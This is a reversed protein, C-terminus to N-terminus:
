RTPGRIWGRIGLEKVVVTAPEPEHSRYKGAEDLYLVRPKLNYTGKDLPRLVIKLEATKLPNLTRGKMDIYSDEVRCIDPASRVEFGEPIIEEVKILQAPAKGANVLEIEIDVDDGVKVDGKGLIFNAQIDANEFRELGVAVERTPSPATFAETTSVTTPAHLMESLSAALERKERVRRLIRQVEESKEPHKAMLFSGASTELIRETMMYWRAKKQPDTEESANDMYIYADFLKQTAEAYDAANKYGARVYHSAASELNRVAESHYTLNKLDEFRTGAELARCFHSHGLALRRTRDDLSHERAEEFLKAAESYLEPSARAEAQTMKQWAQCLCVLPLLEKKAEESTGAITQFKEAASRYRRSSEQYDGQRDLLRGEELVIRGNCYDRRIDSAQVLNVFFEREGEDIISELNIEINRKAEKFLSNAQRFLERAEETQERRSLDEAEELRAWALYNPALYNWRETSKHHEAAKEYHEKAILYKKETHSQKAKEFESWARMYSAYESYFEKLQPIKEAAKEYSESAHKFSEAARLHEGLTTQAKAIKWYSEAIRSEIDLVTASEIAKRWTEIAKRLHETNNTMEYLRTLIIGYNDEYMSLTAFTFLVNARERFRPIKYISKLGKEMNSAAEELLRRKGDLDPQILALEAQIQSLLHRYVMNNWYHFPEIKEYIEINRERHKLAKELLSRRLDVDPELKARAAFTRSLIHSMRSINIPVDLKESVKLAELGARQSRELFELKKEPDTEWWARDLYYEAYGGPPPARTKGGLLVQFSVLSYHHHARNYLEMAKDALKIRQDPDETGYAKYYTGYALWDLAYGKLFNDRTKDSCELAKEYHRLEAEGGIATGLGSHSLVVTYADGADESLEIAKRLQEIIKIRYQERKEPEAVFREAFPYLNGALACYARAIEYSDGLESLAAVAREGWSVGKKLIGRRVQTDWERNARQWSVAQLENYTRGYQLKNGTDWFAKLANEELELCEDLLMKKESPDSAMWHRLYKSLAVCRLTWPAGMEDAVKKYLGGAEKYAEVARELRELFEKRSEAQFAARQLCYGIREKVKGGRFFDGEDVMRFARDYVDAVGLWEYKKELAAAEGQFGEITKRPSM